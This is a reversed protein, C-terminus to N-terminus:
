DPLVVDATRGTYIIIEGPLNHDEGFFNLRAGRDEGIIRAGDKERLM